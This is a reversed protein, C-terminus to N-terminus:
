KPNNVEFVTIYLVSLAVSGWSGAFYTERYKNSYKLGKKYKLGDKVYWRM